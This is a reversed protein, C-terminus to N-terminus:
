SDKGFEYNKNKRLISNLICAGSRVGPKIVIRMELLYLLYRFIPLIYINLNTREILWEKYTGKTQLCHEALYMKERRIFLNLKINNIITM